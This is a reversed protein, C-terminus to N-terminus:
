MVKKMERVLFMDGKTGEEKLKEVRSDLTQGMNLDRFGIRDKLKKVMTPKAALSEIMNVVNRVLNDSNYRGNLLARIMKDLQLFDTYDKTTMVMLKCFDFLCLNHKKLCSFLRQDLKDSTQKRYDRRQQREQKTNM